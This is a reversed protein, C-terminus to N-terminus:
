SGASPAASPSASNVLCAPSSVGGRACIRAVMEEQGPNLPSPKSCDPCLARVLRQSMVTVAADAILFPPIGIEVMRRLAAVSDNAHLTTLVLHGTLSIQLCLELVERGLIEGVM